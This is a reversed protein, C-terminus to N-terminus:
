YVFVEATNSVQSGSTGGLVLLLGSALRTATHGARRENMKAMPRVQIVGGQLFRIQEVDASPGAELNGSFGGVVLVRGDDLLTATHAWRTTTLARPLLMVSDSGPDYLEVTGTSGGTGAVSSLGGVFLIMGDDLLTATHYARPVKLRARSTKWGPANPTLLEISDLPSPNQDRARDLGGAAVLTGDPLATLTFARRGKLLGPRTELSGSSFLEGPLSYSKTANAGLTYSEGGVVLVGGDSVVARHWARPKALSGSRVFRNDESTFVEVKAVPERDEAELGGAVLVNGSQLLTASHGARASAMCGKGAGPLCGSPSSAMTLLSEGNLREMAAMPTPLEPDEPRWVAPVQSFGGCVVLSGDRLLTTTHFARPVLLKASSYSFAGEEEIRGIYLSLTNEGEEIPLPRTRGRSIPNGEYGLGEVTIQRDDGVPVEALTGQGDKISYREPGVLVGPGDVRVRVWRADALPDQDSRWSRVLTITLNGTDVNCGWSVLFVLLLCTARVLCNVM